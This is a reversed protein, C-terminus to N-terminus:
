RLIVPPAAPPAKPMGGGAPSGTASPGNGGMGNGSDLIGTGLPGSNDPRARFVPEDKAGSIHPGSAQEPRPNHGAPPTELKGPLSAMCSKKQPDCTRTLCASVKTSWTVPDAVDAYKKQCRASCAEHKKECSQTTNPKAQASGSALLIAGALVALATAARILLGARKFYRAVSRVANARAQRREASARARWADYDIASPTAFDGRRQLELIFNM